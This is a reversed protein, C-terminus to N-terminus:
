RRELLYGVFATGKAIKDDADRSSAKFEALRTRVFALCDLLNAETIDHDADALSTVLVPTTVPRGALRTTAVMALHFQLNNQEASAANASSSRLFSEVTRMSKAFWFYVNLPVQDNFMRQYEVDDNLLTSPRARSHDPRSLGMAM